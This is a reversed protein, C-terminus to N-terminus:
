MPKSLVNLIVHVEPMSGVSDVILMLQKGVPKVRSQKLSKQAHFLIANFTDSEYYSSEPNNIFYLKLKRIRITYSAM